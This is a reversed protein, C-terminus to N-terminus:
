SARGAEIIVVEGALGEAQKVLPPLDPLADDQFAARIAQRAEHVGRMATAAQFVVALLQREVRELRAEADKVRGVNRRRDEPTLESM